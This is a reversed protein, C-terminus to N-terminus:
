ANLVKEALKKTEEDLNEGKLFDITSMAGAIIIQSSQQIEDETLKTKGKGPVISIYGSYIQDKWVLDYTFIDIHYLRIYVNIDKYRFMKLLRMRAKIKKVNLKTGKSDAKAM